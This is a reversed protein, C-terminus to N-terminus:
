IANQQCASSPRNITTNPDEWGEVLFFFFTLTPGVRVLNEPDVCPKLLRETINLHETVEHVTDM